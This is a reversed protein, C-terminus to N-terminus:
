IIRLLPSPPSTIYRTPRSGMISKEGAHLTVLSIPIVACAINWKFLLSLAAHV